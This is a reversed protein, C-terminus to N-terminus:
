NITWARGDMYRPPAINWLRLISPAFDALHPPHDQWEIRRNCFLVGPVELRDMCHDGCWKDENDSFVEGGTAGVATEWSHRYGSKWGIILEPANATYPGSYVASSEYVTRIVREGSLPDTLESLRERLEATLARAEAGPNVVGRAERGKLNLYVGALGFSYARTREWDVNAFYDSDERRQAAPKEALYGNERLWANLHVCRRFATFGHDSLVMVLDNRGVKRLTRGIMADCLEYVRNIREDAQEDVALPKAPDPQAPRRIFMHQMRDTIDFVCVLFGRRLLRLSEFFMTEREAHIERTQTEFDDDSLVGESLGWTDEALGLTAYPGILKALYISFSKPWSLPMDPHAPDLNLPTVYLCFDAAVGKLLFRAIGHVKTRGKRFTLAIWPSYRGITVRHKKGAVSLVAGGAPARKKWLVKLPIRLEEGNVSPGPLTCLACDGSIQAQLRKGGTTKAGDPAASFVTFEGQTGRLDPTCMAALSRGKSPEPPFSIPMRLATCSVRNESLIHWFPKSKRLLKAEIGGDSTTTIRTSSLLPLCTALDRSLFDFIQHKGPNVGTAFTSWAVPSIPPCTSGLPSFHGAAAMEKLHPLRGADMLRKARRPDMGDLGVVVVRRFRGQAKKLFLAILLRFPMSLLILLGLLLAGIFILFSGMVAFGAGPGIYALFVM